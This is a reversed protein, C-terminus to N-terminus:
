VLTGTTSDIVGEPTVQVGSVVHGTSVDIVKAPTVEMGPVLQGSSDVVGEPTIQM